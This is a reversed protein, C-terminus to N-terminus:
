KIKQQLNDFFVDPSTKSVGSEVGEQIMKKLLVKEKELSDERRILEQVFGSVTSYQKKQSLKQLKNKLELPLSIKITANSM